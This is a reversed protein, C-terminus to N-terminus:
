GGADAVMSLGSRDAGLVRAAYEIGGQQFFAGELREGSMLHREAKKIMGNSGLSPARRYGLCAGEILAVEKKLIGAGLTTPLLANVIIDEGRGNGVLVETGFRVLFLRRLEKMERREAIWGFATDILSGNLLDFTLKGGAWVRREPANAPRGRFNWDPDVEHLEEEPLIGELRGQPFSGSAVKAIREVPLGSLMLVRSLVRDFNEGCLRERDAFIRGALRKMPARNNSYGLSDFLRILIEREIQLDDSLRPTRRLMETTRRLFRQWSLEALLPFPDDPLHQPMRERDESPLTRLEEALITPIPLRSKGPGTGEALLHLIVRNYAPDNQHGHAFWDAERMHMEVPGTTLDGDIVLVANLFDPGDTHNREGPSIVVIPQGASSRFATGPVAQQHWLDYLDAESRIVALSSM